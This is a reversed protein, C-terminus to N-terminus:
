VKLLDIMKENCGKFQNMKKEWYLKSFIIQKSMKFIM